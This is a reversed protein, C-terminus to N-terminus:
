PMAIWDNSVNHLRKISISQTVIRLDPSMQVEHLSIGLGELEPNGAEGRFLVDSLGHQILEGARLQRRSPANGQSM